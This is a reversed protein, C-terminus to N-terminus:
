AFGKSLDYCLKCVILKADKRCCGRHVAQQCKFCSVRQKGNKADAPLPKACVECLKHAPSKRACPPELTMVCRRSRSKKMHVNREKCEVCIRHANSFFCLESLAEEDTLERGCCACHGCEPCFWDGQPVELVPPDICEMHYARDCADCILMTEESTNENCIECRKCDACHWPFRTVMAYNLPPDLCSFCVLLDKTDGPERQCSRQHCWLEIREDPSDPDEGFVAEAGYRALCAESQKKLDVEEVVTRGRGTEQASTGVGVRGREKVPAARPVSAKKHCVDSPNHADPLLICSQPSSFSSQSSLPGLSSVDSQPTPVGSTNRRGTTDGSAGMTSPLLGRTFACSRCIAHPELSPEAREVDCFMCYEISRARKRILEFLQRKQSAVTNAVSILLSSIDEASHQPFVGRPAQRHQPSFQHAKEDPPRDGVALSSTSTLLQHRSLKTWETSSDFNDPKESALHRNLFEPSPVRFTSNVPAAATSHSLLRFRQLGGEPCSCVPLGTYMCGSHLAM